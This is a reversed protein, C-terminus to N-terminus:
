ANPELGHKRRLSAFAEDLPTSPVGAEYDAIAERVATLDEEADELAMLAKRLVDEESAYHGTSMHAGILEQIDPAFRDAM